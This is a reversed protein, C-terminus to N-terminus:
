RSDSVDQTTADRGLMGDALSLGRTIVRNSVTVSSSTLYDRDFVDLGRQHMQWAILAITLIAERSIPDTSDVADVVSREYDQADASKSELQDVMADSVIPKYNLAKVIDSTNVDPRAKVYDSITM